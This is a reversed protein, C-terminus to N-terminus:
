PGFEIKNFDGPRASCTRTGHRLLVVSQAPDETNANQIVPLVDGYAAFQLLRM